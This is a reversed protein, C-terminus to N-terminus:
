KLEVEKMLEEISYTRCMEGNDWIEESSIDITDDWIVGCRDVDIHAKNFLKYDKLKKFKENQKILPKLDYQKITGDDFTSLLLYGPIVTVHSIKHLM